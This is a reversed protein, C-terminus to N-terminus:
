QVVIVGTVEPHYRSHVHVTEPATAFWHSYQQGPMMLGSEFSEPQGGDATVSQYDSDLNSFTIEAGGPITVCFPLFQGHVILVSTTATATAASCPQPPPAEETTDADSCAVLGAAAAAIGLTRLSAM